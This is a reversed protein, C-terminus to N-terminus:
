SSELLTHRQWALPGHFGCHLSIDLVKRLTDPTVSDPPWLNCLEQFLKEGREGTTSGGMYQALVRSLLDPNVAWFMHFHKLCLMQTFISQACVTFHHRTRLVATLRYDARRYPKQLITETSVKDFAYRSASPSL